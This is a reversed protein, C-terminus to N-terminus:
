LLFSSIKLPTVGNSAELSAIQYSKALVFALLNCTKSERASDERDRGSLKYPRGSLRKRLLWKKRMSPNGIVGICTETLRAFEEFECQLITFNQM